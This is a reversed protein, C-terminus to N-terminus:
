VVSDESNLIKPINKWNQTTMCTLELINLLEHEVALSPLIQVIVKVM